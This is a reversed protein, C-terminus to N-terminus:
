SESLGIKAHLRRLPGPAWWNRAGLLAMLSPVLFARIISADIIVALATGVGVEKIFIVSSTAFAGIAICFLLAAQTVIRGTRELGIAVSDKESHGLTRAEKIRTLLFVAYDTALGFAIAFLLVPQSLELAGQSEFGLLGELNGEQFILVLLGFAAALSLFNMLLSKLPLVISGTMLFLVVFTTGCLLLAALPLNSGISSRQDIFSATEGTVSAPFPAPRDRITEVLDITGEDLPPARPVLSITWLDGRLERPPPELNPNVGPLARLERAYATVEARDTPGALVTIEGASPNAAFDSNLANDVQRASLHEPVATIDIGTFKIGLAPLALLILFLSSLLAVLGPRRMVAQSLRYWPGSREQSATRQAARKWREPALSNVRPGLLALLAPLALLSVSVAALACVSGGIGMSYLFPQPFTILAALAIAVTIASYLVTRGATYVARRLAESESGAFAGGEERPRAGYVKSPPRGMGVRALEERYRSVIFLSYDIALGLGLGIVINLAFPSIGVISNIIRLALFTTFITLIGVFLPLLAAVFGRFVFLSVIFLLPFAIAEAKALDETVQEALQFEAIAGGGLIVAPPDELEDLLRSAADEQEAEDSEKFFAAVYTSQGDESVFARERTSFFSATRAVLPDRGLAAEVERVRERTEASDVPGTEILAVVQAGPEEGSASAIRESARVSEASPDVFPDDAHLLDAVPGGFAGAVVFFVAVVALITKPRRDSLAAFRSLLGTEASPTPPEVPTVDPIPREPTALVLTTTGVWIADGPEVVTPAHIREGNVFTGNRTGLDEIVIRGDVQSVRAHRRSLEPDGGLAADGSESRGIVIGGPDISLTTGSSAGAVVRLGQGPAAAAAASELRLTTTGLELSQGPRLETAGEIRRGDVFTGNTSGLDEVFPRGDQLYVRAHRRSLEPDDGLRGTGAEARGIAFAEDGLPITTGEAPGAIVKLEARPTM